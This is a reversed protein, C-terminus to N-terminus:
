RGIGTLLGNPFFDIALAGVGAMDEVGLEDMVVDPQGCLSAAIKFIDDATQNQLPFRRFDKAIPERFTLCTITQSGFKIPKILTYATTGDALKRAPATRAAKGAAEWASRIADTLADWTPLAEGSVLSKGGSAALYAEYAAQGLRL